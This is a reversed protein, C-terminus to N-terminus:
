GRCAWPDHRFHQSSPAAVVVPLDTIVSGEKIADDGKTFKNPREQRTIDETTTTTTATTTTLTSPSSRLCEARPNGADVNVRTNNSNVDNSNNYTGAQDKINLDAADKVVEHYYWLQSQLAGVTKESEGKAREVDSLKILLEVLKDLHRRETEEM